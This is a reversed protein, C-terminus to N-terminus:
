RISLLQALREPAVTHIPPMPPHAIKKDSKRPFSTASTPLNQSPPTNELQYPREARVAESTKASLLDKAQLTQQEIQQDASTPILDQMEKRQFELARLIDKQELLEKSPITRSHGLINIVNSLKQKIFSVTEKSDQSLTSRAENTESNPGKLASKKDSYISFPVTLTPNLM